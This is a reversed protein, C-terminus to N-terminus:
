DKSFLIIAPQPDINLGSRNKGIMFAYNSQIFILYSKEIKIVKLSGDM